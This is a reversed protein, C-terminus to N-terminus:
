SDAQCLTRWYLDVHRPDVGFMMDDTIQINHSQSDGFPRWDNELQVGLVGSLDDIQRERAAPQDVHVFFPSAENIFHEMAEWMADYRWAMKGDLKGRRDWSHKVRAPHRMPVIIVRSKSDEPLEDILIHGARLDGGAQRYPILIQDRVVRTGTHSISVLLAKSLMGSLMDNVKSLM